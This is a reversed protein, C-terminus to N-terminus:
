KSALLVAGCPSTYTSSKGTDFFIGYLAIRGESELGKKLSAADVVRVQGTAMPGLEVAQEYTPLRKNSGEDMVYFRM